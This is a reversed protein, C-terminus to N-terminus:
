RRSLLQGEFERRMAEYVAYVVNADRNEKAASGNRRAEDLAGIGARIMGLSADPVSFEADAQRKEIQSM